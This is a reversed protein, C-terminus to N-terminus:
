RSLRQKQPLQRPEQQSTEVCRDARLGIARSANIQIASRTGFLLSESAAALEQASYRAFRVSQFRQQCAGLRGDGRESPGTPCSGTCLRWEFSMVQLDYTRIRDGYGSMLEQFRITKLPRKNDQVPLSGSAIVFAPQPTIRAILGWVNKGNLAASRPVRSFM